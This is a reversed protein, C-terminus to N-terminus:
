FEFNNKLFIQIESVIEFKFELDEMIELQSYESYSINSNTVEATNFLNVTLFTAVSHLNFFQLVVM